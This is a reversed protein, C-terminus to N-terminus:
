GRIWRSYWLLRKEVQSLRNWRISWFPEEVAGFSQYFRVISPKVPSEFDFTVPKGSYERIVQDILLTRANKKRGIESAANFLYIIRNGERTFFAGAEINGDLVAYRLFGLGRKLLENAVTAFVEYSWDAIGGKISDAHHNRFLYVLPDLDIANTVVWNTTAAHRLNTKRDSSYRSVLAEYGVSLDLVHTAFKEIQTEHDARILQRQHLRSGYRFQQQIRLLFPTPDIAEASFVALLQCFFPQHVVWGFTIGVLRKQRLPVPMVARYGGQEDLLVLGVWKWGPASLVADLYWTYGYVIGNPASAVCADWASDNIDTRAIFDMFRTRLM